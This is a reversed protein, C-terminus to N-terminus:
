IHKHFMNKEWRFNNILWCVKTDCLNSGFRYVIALAFVEFVKFFTSDQTRISVDKGGEEGILVWINQFIRRLFNTLMSLMKKFFIELRHARSWRIVRMDIMHHCALNLVMFKWISMNEKTDQIMMWENKVGKCFWFRTFWVESVILM